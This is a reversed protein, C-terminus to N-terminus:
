RFIDIEQQQQQNQPLDPNNPNAYQTPETGQQFFEFSSSSDTAQSLLGPLISPTM